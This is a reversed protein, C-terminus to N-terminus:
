RARKLTTLSGRRLNGTQIPNAPTVPQTCRKRQRQQEAEYARHWAARETPTLAAM